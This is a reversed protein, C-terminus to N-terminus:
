RSPLDLRRQLRLRDPMAEYLEEPTAVGLADLIEARAQPATSPVYPHAARDYM